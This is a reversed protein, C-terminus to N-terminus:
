PEGIYEVTNEVRSTEAGNELLVTGIQGCLTVVDKEDFDGM